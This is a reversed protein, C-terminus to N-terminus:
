KYKRIITAVVGLLQVRENFALTPFVPNASVLVPHEKQIEYRRIVTQEEVRAIVIDGHKPDRGRELIAVDGSIIGDSEMADTSVHVLWSSEKHPVLWEEFTLTDGLEEEAPSPWGAVVFGRVSLTVLKPTLSHM